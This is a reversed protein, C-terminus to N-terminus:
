SFSSLIAGLRDQLPQSVDVDVGGVDIRTLRPLVRGVLTEVVLKAVLAQAQLPKATALLGSDQDFAPPPM